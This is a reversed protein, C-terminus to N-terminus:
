NFMLQVDHFQFSSLRSDAPIQQFRSSDAPNQHARSGLTQWPLSAMRRGFLGHLGPAKRHLRSHTQLTHLERLFSLQEREIVRATPIECFKQATKPKCRM